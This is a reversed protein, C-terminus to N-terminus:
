ISRTQMFYFFFYSKQNQNAIFISLVTCLQIKIRKNRQQTIKIKPFRRPKNIKLVLIYNQKGTKEFAVKIIEMSDRNLNICM